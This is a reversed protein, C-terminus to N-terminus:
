EKKDKKDKDKDEKEKEKDKRAKDEKIQRDKKAIEARIKIELTSGKLGTIVLDKVINVAEVPPVDTGHVATAGKLMLKFDAEKMKQKQGFMGLDCTSNIDLGGNVAKLMYLIGTVPGTPSGKVGLMYRIYRSKASNWKELFKQKEEDTKKEWGPPYDGDWGSKTGSVWGEPMATLTPDEQPIAAILLALLLNM